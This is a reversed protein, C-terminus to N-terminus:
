TGSASVNTRGHGGNGRRCLRANLAVGVAIGGHLVRRAVDDPAAEPDERTEHPEVRDRERDGDDARDDIGARGDEAREDETLDRVLHQGRAEGLGAHVGLGGPRPHRQDHDHRQHSRDAGDGAAVERALGRPEALRPESTRNCVVEERDWELEM